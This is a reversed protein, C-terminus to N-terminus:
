QVVRVVLTAPLINDGNVTLTSASAFVNFFLRRRCAHPARDHRSVNNTRVRRTRRRATCALPRVRLASSTTTRSQGCSARRDTSVRRLHAASAAAAAAATELLRRQRKSNLWTTITTTRPQRTIVDDIVEGGDASKGVDGDDGEDPLTLEAPNSTLADTQPYASTVDCYDTTVIRAYRWATRCSATNHSTLQHLNTM